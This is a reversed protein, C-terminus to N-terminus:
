QKKAPPRGQISVPLPMLKVSVTQAKNSRYIEIQVTDGIQKKDLLKYLDDLNAIASGDISTIIDGLVLEGDGSQSIGRLGAAAASGGPSVGRILLGKAGPSRFLM